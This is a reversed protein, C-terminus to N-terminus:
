FQQFNMIVVSGKPLGEKKEICRSIEQIDQLDEIQKERDVQTNGFGSGAQTKTHYSIFYKYVLENNEKRLAKDM